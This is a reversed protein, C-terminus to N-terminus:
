LNWGGSVVINAGSTYAAADSLLYEVASVIDQFSGKRGVPIPEGPEGVSNELFGPSVMNFTVGRGGHRQAFTRTLVHVGLKAIHYPTAQPRAEIRDAGSDGISIVRASGAGSLRTMLRQTLDFNVTCTLRFIREFSPTDIDEVFAEPYIGLNHILACLAEPRQLIADAFAARGTEEHLDAKLPFLPRDKQLRELGDAQSRYQAVVGYGRELLMETLAMGLGSSAGTVAALRTFAQTM